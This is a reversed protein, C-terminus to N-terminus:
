EEFLKDMNIEQATCYGLQVPEPVFVTSTTLHENESPHYESYQYIFGGPVRMCEITLHEGGYVTMTKHLKLEHLKQGAIESYGADGGSNALVEKVQPLELIHKVAEQRHEIQAHPIDWSLIKNLQVELANM